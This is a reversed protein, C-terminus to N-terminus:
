VRRLWKLLEDKSKDDHCRVKLVRLNKMNNVLYLITTRDSTNIYLFQNVIGDM